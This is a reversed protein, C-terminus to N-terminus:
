RRIVIIGALAILAIGAMSAFDLRESFLAIGWLVAFALYSFDWTAVTSPPGSQYAIATGVSGILMTGSLLLILAWQWADMGLWTGM